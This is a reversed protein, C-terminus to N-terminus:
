WVLLQNATAARCKKSSKVTPGFAISNWMAVFKTQFGSEGIQLKNSQRRKGAFGLAERAFEQKDLHSLIVEEAKALREQRRAPGQYAPEQLVTLTEQV